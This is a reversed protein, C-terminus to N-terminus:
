LSIIRMQHELKNNMDGIATRLLNIGVLWPLHFACFAKQCNLYAFIKLSIFEEVFCTVMFAAFQPRTFGYFVFLDEVDKKIHKQQHQWQKHEARSVEHYRPRQPLSNLGLFVEFLLKWLVLFTTLTELIWCSKNVGKREIDIHTALSVNKRCTSFM